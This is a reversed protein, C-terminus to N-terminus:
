VVRDVAQPNFDTRFLPSDDTIREGWRKRHGPYQQIANRSEPTCFSFYSHRKSRAYVNVKFINYSDIPELDRIRLLPVSGVRLGASSMLLIIAKSRTSCHEVLTRIESHSYPRDELVKEHEGMFSYVKKWNLMVDNMSYFKNIAAVYMSITAYAAGKKRLYSVFDCVDMQILKPDKELLKDYADPQLHLYSMFYTLAKVYGKRTAPSRCTEVFNHYALTALQESM